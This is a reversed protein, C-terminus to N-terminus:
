VNLLDAVEGLREKFVDYPKLANSAISTVLNVNISTKNSEPLQKWVDDLFEELIELTVLRYPQKWWNRDRTVM